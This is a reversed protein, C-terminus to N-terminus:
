FGSQRVALKEKVSPFLDMNTHPLFRSGCYKDMFMNNANMEFYTIKNAIQEIERRKENSLLVQRAGEGSSNGLRMMHERPLDPYLGITIASELPLYQGFAGAAYFKVIEEWRCGVSEILVELAANVAGKTRMLSSIDKQSIFIERGEASEHAPVIIFRERGDTFRAARDIIGNLFLEALIDILGSGCIGRAPANDITTYRVSHESDIEVHDVAGQEARIGCETVGGELAPGAAGACAVLWEHNGLIFEGNTGIDVLLSTEEQKHMGSVLIGALVDGGIYSGISPLCYTPALPNVDLGIDKACFVEANNVVPKYPERCISGPDLGLLLHVMTTNAGICVGNIDHPKLSFQTCLNQILENLTNVILAQLEKLGKEERAVMIRSLIDDGFKIQGNYDSAKGIIDGNIMNVLYVVVTTTGIDIALGVNFDTHDGPELNILQYSGAKGEENIDHSATLTVTIAENGDRGFKLVDNMLPVPISVPVGLRQHLTQRLSDVMGKNSQEGRRSIDISIKRTLPDLEFDNLVTQEALIVPRYNNM